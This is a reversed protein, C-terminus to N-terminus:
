STVNVVEVQFEAKRACGPCSSPEHNAEASDAAARFTFWYDVVGRLNSRNPVEYYNDMAILIDVGFFYELVRTVHVSHINFFSLM